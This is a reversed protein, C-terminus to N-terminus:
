VAPLPAIQIPGSKRRESFQHLMAAHFMLFWKLREGFVSL